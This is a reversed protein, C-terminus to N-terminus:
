ESTLAAQVDKGKFEAVPWGRVSRANFRGDYGIHAFALRYVLTMVKFLDDFHVQMQDDQPECSGHAASNRLKNWATIEEATVAGAKQLMRLVDVTRGGSSLGGLLAALREKLSRQDPGQNSAEFKKALRKLGQMQLVRRKVKDAVEKQKPSAIVQKQFKRTQALAEVAVSLQLAIVAMSATSMDFLSAVKRTLQSMLELDGDKCAHEYYASALKYFDQEAVRDQIPPSAFGAKVPRHKSFLISRLKGHALETCVPQALLASCFIMTEQVRMDFHRPPTVGEAAHVSLECREVTDDRFRRVYTLDLNALRGKSGDRGIFRSGSRGVEDVHHNEPMRLNEIYTLRAAYAPEKAQSINEVYSAEFHVEYEDRGLRERVTVRPCTWLVGTSTVAELRFYKDDRVLQGLTDDNSMFLRAYLDEIANSPKLVRFDGRVGFSKGLILNGPAEYVRPQEVVLQTLRIRVCPVELTDQLFQHLYEDRLSSVCDTM